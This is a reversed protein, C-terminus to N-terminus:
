ATEDERRRHLKSNYVLLLAATLVLLTGGMTYLYTGKGGTSPLETGPANTVKVTLPQGDNLDVRVGTVPIGDAPTIKMTEQEYFAQYGPAPEESVVYYGNGDPILLNSFSGKWDTAKSLTVETVFSVNRIPTGDEATSDEVLYLRLVIPNMIDGNTDEWAKEVPIDVTVCRNTIVVDGYIIDDESPESPETPDESPETPDESPETPEESPETPETPPETPETPPETPEEEENTGLYMYDVYVNDAYLDYGQIFIGISTVRGSLGLEGSTFTQTQNSVPQIKGLSIEHLTGDVTIRLRIDAPDYDAGVKYLSIEFHDEPKVDYGTDATYEVITTANYVHTLVMYGDLAFPAVASGTAGGGASAKRTEVWNALPKQNTDFGFFLSDKAIVAPVARTSAKKANRLVTEDIPEALMAIVTDTSHPGIRIQALTGNYTTIFGGTREVVYYRFGEEPEVLNSFIGTWGNEESLTISRILTAQGEADPALYLDVEVPVKRHDPVNADWLKRVPIAVTKEEVFPSNVIRWGDSEVEEVIVTETWKYLTFTAGNSETRNTDAYNGDMETFYYKTSNRTGYLRGQSTINMVNTSGANASQRITSGLISYNFNLYGGAGSRLYFGSGAATATWVYPQTGPDEGLAKASTTSMTLSTDSGTALVTDNLAFLYQGGEELATAPRWSYIKTTITDEHEIFKYSVKYGPPVNIEEVSYVILNGDADKEPLEYFFGKWDNADSLTMTRETPQGNSLLRVVIPDHGETDDDEWVKEVYLKAEGGVGVENYVSLSVRTGTESFRYADAYIWEKDESNLILVTPTGTAGLNLQITYKTMDPYGPHDPPRTPPRTEKIYYSRGAILGSCLIQGAENTTFETPHSTNGFEDTYMLNALQTCAEDEFVQFVAGELLSQNKADRKIIELEYMPALNFYIACNSLSSGREMYYVTLTHMEGPELYPLNTTTIDGQTGDIGPMYNNAESASNRAYTGENEWDYGASKVKGTAFNIEGYAIDHVGGIDLVLQDDVFIWVDDDGSFRFQMDTGNSDVNESSGVVDPLYFTIESTMGYWFNVETGNEDYKDDGSKGYNFPLFDNRSYDHKVGSTYDYVYFRQASQNYTAANLASNYYYFGTDADFQFLMDAKGLYHRGLDDSRTFLAEKVDNTFLGPVIGGVFHPMDADNYTNDNRTQNHVSNDIGLSLPRGINGDGDDGHIWDTLVFNFGSSNVTWTNFDWTSSNTTINPVNGTYAAGRLNFLENYDFIHTEVFPLRPQDAVVDVNQGLDYTEAVYDPYLIVDKALTIKTGLKDEGYYIKNVIDYWGVVRFPYAGTNDLGTLLTVQNKADCNVVVRSAGDYKTEGGSYYYHSGFQGDFLAQFENAKYLGITPEVVKARTSPKPDIQLYAGNGMLKVEPDSPDATWLTREEEDQTLYLKPKGGEENAMSLHYIQGDIETDIYYSNEEVPILNWIEITPDKLIMEQGGVTETDLKRSVPELNEVVLAYKGSVLAYVGSIEHLNESTVDTRSMYSQSQVDVATVAFREKDSMPFEASVLDEQVSATQGEALTAGEGDPSVVYIPYNEYLEGDATYSLKVEIAAQPVIRKGDLYFGIDFVRLDRIVPPLDGSLERALLDHTSVYARDYDQSDADETLERVVLEAEDPIGSDKNLLIQVSLGDESYSREIGHALRYNEYAQNLDGYGLIKPDEPDYDAYRVRNSSNGEITKIEEVKNDSDYKLEAVLGVHESKGDANWDFFILDGAKPTHSDANRYLDVNEASLAKIWATCSCHTPVDQVGAYEMCFSAFMACWDGYPDGYWQGYRTYGKTGGDETVFYNKESEKYGMQSSAIAVLDKTWNGSMQVGDISSLWDEESELDAEPDSYCSLSHTHETKGCGLTWNGYCLESHSHNVDESLECTLVEEPIRFCSDGHDHVPAELQGCVVAYHQPTQFENKGEELTCTLQSSHAYCEEGHVHGSVEELTCQLEKEYCSAGHVHGEEMGCLLTEGRLYCNYTHAHEESEEQGCTLVKDYCLDCHSHNEEQECTLRETQLFCEDGHSHGETETLTCTLEGRVSQYCSENHRHVEVPALPAYCDTSHVHTTREKLKCILDGDANYCHEKHVHAYFEAKGCILNGQSDECAESHTHPVALHQECDLVMLLGNTRSYCDRTHQHEEFGCYTQNATTLAPLILAYTTCFVVVCALVVVVKQLRSKIIHRRQYEKTKNVTSNSM